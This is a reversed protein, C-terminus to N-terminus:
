EGYKVSCGYAETQPVAVPKGAMVDDIAAAV